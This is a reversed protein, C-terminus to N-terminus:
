FWRTVRIKATNGTGTYRRVAWVKASASFHAPGTGEQYYSPAVAGGSPAYNGAAGTSTIADSPGIFIDGELRDFKVKGTGEFVLTPVDTTLDFEEVVINQVTM